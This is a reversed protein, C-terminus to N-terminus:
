KCHHLHSSGMNSWFFRFFDITIFLFMLYLISVTKHFNIEVNYYCLLFSRDDEITDCMYISLLKHLPCHFNFSSNIKLRVIIDHCKKFSILCTWPNIFFCNRNYNIKTNDFTLQECSQEICMKLVIPRDLNHESIKLVVNHYIWGNNQLCNIMISNEDSKKTNLLLRSISVQVVNLTCRVVYPKILKEETIPFSYISIEILHKGIQFPLLNAINENLCSNGSISLKAREVSFLNFPRKEYFFKFSIKIERNTSNKFNLFDFRFKSFCAITMSINWDSKNTESLDLECLSIGNNISKLDKSRSDTTNYLFSNELSPVKKEFYSDFASM